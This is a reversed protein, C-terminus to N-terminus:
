RRAWAVSNRRARRSCRSVPLPCFPVSSDTSAARARRREARRMLPLRCVKRGSRSLSQDSSIRGSSAQSEPVNARSCAQAARSSRSSRARCRSEPEAAKGAWDAAEATPPRTVPAPRPMGAGAPARAGPVPGAAVGVAVASRPLRVTPAALRAGQQFALEGQGPGPGVGGCELSEARGAEVRDGVLDGDQGALDRQGRGRGGGVQARQGGGGPLAEGVRDGRQRQDGGPVGVVGLGEDM